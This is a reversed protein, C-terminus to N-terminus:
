LIGWARYRGRGTAERLGLEGVLDQAARPTIKLEAAIMGASAIPRTRQPGRDVEPGSGATDVPAGVPDISEAIATIRARSPTPHPMRTLTRVEGETSALREQLAKIQESQKKITKQAEINARNLNDVTM